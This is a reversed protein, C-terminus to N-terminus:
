KNEGGAPELHPAKQARPKRPKAPSELMALFRTIDEVRRGLAGIQGDLKDREELLTVKVERARM